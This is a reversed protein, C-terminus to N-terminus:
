SSAIKKKIDEISTFSSVDADPAYHKYRNGPTMASPKQGYVVEVKYNFLLELDEKTISGPRTIIIKKEEVKVVTSEIGVPCRGGDIIIPINNMLNDYVMKASTPSPKTSINASPAAIPFDCLALLKQAVPHNPIRISMLPHGATIISPIM